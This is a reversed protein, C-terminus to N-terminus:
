LTTLNIKITKLEQNILNQILTIFFFLVSIYVVM